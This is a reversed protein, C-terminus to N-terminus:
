RSHRGRNEDRSAEFAHTFFPISAGHIERIDPVEIEFAQDPTTAGIKRHAASIYFSSACYPVM